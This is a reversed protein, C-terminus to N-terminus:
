IEVLRITSIVPNFPHFPDFCIYNMTGLFTWHIGSCIPGLNMLLLQAQPNELDKAGHHNDVISGHLGSSVQDGDLSLPVEEPYCQRVLM